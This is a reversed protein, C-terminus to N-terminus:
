KSYSVPGYVNGDMGPSGMHQQLYDHPGSTKLLARSDHLTVVPHM